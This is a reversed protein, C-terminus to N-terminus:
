VFKCCGRLVSYVHLHFLETINLEGADVVGGSEEEKEGDELGTAARWVEDGDLCALVATKYAEGMRHAMERACVSVLRRRFEDADNGAAGSGGSSYYHADQWMGIEFLVVGLAYLDFHREFRRHLGESRLKPHLWFRWPSRGGERLDITREDPRERRALGFGLLQPARFDLRSTLGTGAFPASKPSTTATIAPRANYLAINRSNITKHM